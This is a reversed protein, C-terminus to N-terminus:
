PRPVACAPTRLSGRAWFDSWQPGHSRAIGVSSCLLGTRRGGARSGATNPTSRSAPHRSSSTTCIRSPWKLQFTCPTALTPLSNWFHASRLFKVPASPKQAEAGPRSSSYKRDIYPGQRSSYRANCAPLIFKFPQKSLCSGCLSVFLDEVTPFPQERAAHEIKVRHALIGM